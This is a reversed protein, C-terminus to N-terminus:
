AEFVTIPHRAHNFLEGSVLIYGGSGYQKQPSCVSSALNNNTGFLTLGGLGYRDYPGERIGTFCYTDPSNKHILSVLRLKVQVRRKSPCLSRNGSAGTFAHIYPM